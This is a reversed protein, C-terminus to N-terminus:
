LTLVNHAMNGEHGLDNIVKSKQLLIPFFILIKIVGLINNNRSTNDQLDIKNLTNKLETIYKSKKSFYNLFVHFTLGKIYTILGRLLPFGAV